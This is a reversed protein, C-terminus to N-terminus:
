SLRDVYPTSLHRLPFQFTKQGRNLFQCSHEESCYSTKNITMLRMLKKREKKKRGDNKRKM